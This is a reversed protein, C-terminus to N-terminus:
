ARSLYTCTGNLFMNEPLILSLGYLQRLLSLSTDMVKYHPEFRRYQLTRYESAIMMNLWVDKCGFRTDTQQLSYSTSEHVQFYTPSERSGTRSPCIGALM